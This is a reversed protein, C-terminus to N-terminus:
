QNCCYLQVITICADKKFDRTKETLIPHTNTSERKLEEVVVLAVEAELTAKKVEWPEAECAKECSNRM